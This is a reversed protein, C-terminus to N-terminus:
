GHMGGNGPWNGVEKASHELSGKMRRYPDSAFRGYTLGGREVVLAQLKLLEDMEASFTAWLGLVRAGVDNIYRNLGVTHLWAARSRLHAVRGFGVQRRRTLEDVVAQLTEVEASPNKKGSAIQSLEELTAGELRLTSAAQATRLAASQRLLEAGLAALGEEAQRLEELVGALEPPPTTGVERDVAAVWEEQARRGSAMTALERQLTARQSDLREREAWFPDEEPDGKWANLWGTVRDAVGVGNNVAM